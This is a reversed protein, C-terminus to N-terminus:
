ARAQSGPNIPTPLWDLAHFSERLLWWYDRIEHPNQSLRRVVRGVYRPRLYFRLHAKNYFHWIEDGTLSATEHCADRQHVKFQDWTFDDDLVNHEMYHDYMETGPYPTAMSFFAIDPNLECAFDITNQATERTEGIHGFMFFTLAKLGHRKTLAIADRVHDVTINKGLGQILEPDGSEVGFMIGFCGSAKMIRIMEETLPRVRAHCHWHIKMGSDIIRQCFEFLDKTRVNITDDVFYFHRAGDRHYHLEIERFVSEPTRYRYPPWSQGESCFNCAFPCGRSAALKVLQGGRFGRNMLPGISYRENPFKKRSPLPIEDLHKFRRIPQYHAVAGSEERFWIGGNGRPETWRDADKSVISGANLTHCLEALVLEGDGQVVYDFVPFEDLTREPIATAHPGGLVVTLGPLAEKCARAIRDVLVITTTTSSIGLIRPSLERVRDVTSQISLGEANADLFEYPLEEAELTGALYALGLPYEVSFDQKFDYIEAVYPPNLLLLSLPENM